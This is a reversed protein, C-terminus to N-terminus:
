RSELARSGSWEVAEGAGIDLSIRDVASVTGRPTFFNVSLSRVALLPTTM